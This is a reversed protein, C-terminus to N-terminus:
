LRMKEVLAHFRPSERLPDLIPNIRLYAVWGRREEYARETWDLAGAVDGLGIFLTAFAVPSVYGTAARQELDRLQTLAGERDGRLALVYGLTAITYPGAGRLSSPKACCASRRWSM